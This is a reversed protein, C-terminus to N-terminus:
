LVAQVLHREPLGQKAYSAGEDTLRLIVHETESVRLLQREQLTTLARTVAASSQKSSSALEDFSCNGGHSQLARMVAAENERMEIMFLACMWQTQASM